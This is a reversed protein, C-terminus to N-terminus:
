DVQLLDKPMESLIEPGSSGLYVLSELRVGGFGELYVGPEITFVTGEELIGTGGPSLSPPEHIELGIGHGLGHIFYKGYGAKALSERAARDVDRVRRGVAVSDLARMHAEYVAAHVRKQEASPKGVCCTVTEDSNYGEHLCGYDMIVLDGSSIVKDSASAHPLASRDGSAVITTFALGDAGELRFGHELGAAVAKETMGRLGSDVIRRCVRSATRAAIQITEMERPTKSVRMRELFTRRVPVIEVDGIKRSLAMVFEHSVRSPEIGLRRIRAKKIASALADIKRRVVRVAFGKAQQHAQTKYRGDTFLSRETKTLLVSADSGTFGTLYRLNASALVESTNLLVGDVGLRGLHQHITLAYYKMTM